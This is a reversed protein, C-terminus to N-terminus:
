NSCQEVHAECRAQSPAAPVGKNDCRKTRVVCLNTSTHITHASTHHPGPNQDSTGIRTHPPHPCGHPPHRTVQATHVTHASHTCQAHARYTHTHWVAPATRAPLPSPCPRWACSVPRRQCHCHGPAQRRQRQDWPLDLVLLLQRSVAQQTVVKTPHGSALAQGGGGGGGTGARHMRNVARGAGGGAGEGPGAGDCGRLWFDM